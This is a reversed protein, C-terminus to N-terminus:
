ETTQISYWHMGQGEGGADYRTIALLLLRPRVQLDQCAVKRPSVGADTEITEITVPSM